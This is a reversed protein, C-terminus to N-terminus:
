RRRARHRLDVPPLAEFGPKAFYYGQLLSIGAARLVGVEADSEVGEALVAIGLSRAMWVIGAVIVQRAASAEIGRVLEM